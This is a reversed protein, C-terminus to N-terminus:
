RGLATLGPMPLGALFDLMAGGGTSVFSMKEFLKWNELVQVSEGGGVITLADSAAMAEVVARTGADFPPEEFKGLPGNWVITKAERIKMVFAEIAKPGIDFRGEAFDEPLLVKETFIMGAAVAEDAIKSGVLVTDYKEEFVKLVPLKTEIKAGGVIAVAPRDPAALAGGLYEVERLLHFGAASPLFKTVGTVSAQDRHCVSFAENVFVEFPAALRKAFVEDNKEEEAYFRVNELLIVQKKASALTLKELVDPIQGSLCDDVFQVNVGLAREVDDTLCQVSFKEDRQGNPRGFHSLLAVRAGREVLYQVTERASEIKYKERVDGREDIEVNADIRVLVRKGAVELEDIQKLKQM